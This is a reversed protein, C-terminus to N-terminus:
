AQQEQQKARERLESLMPPITSYVRKVSDRASVALMAADSLVQGLAWRM